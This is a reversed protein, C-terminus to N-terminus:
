VSEKAALIGIELRPLRGEVEARDAELWAPLAIREGLREVPENIAFGPGDTAIEFLAGGPERFYISRFYGRDMVASVQHGDARLTELRKEQEEDDPTRFAVHHVQGAGIRPLGAASAPIVDVFRAVAGAAEYRVREGERGLERYGFREALVRAPLQPDSEALTVGHLARIAREAGIGGRLWGKCQCAGTNEVLSLPVGDPDSFLLARAAFRLGSQVATQQASLRKEWWDLSDLPVSFATEAVQGKGPSGMPGRPWVFFTMLTGPSGMGDGYYLHYSAPDDYNITRKVLRLGLTGTYFDFNKQGDATIATVHHLGQIANM